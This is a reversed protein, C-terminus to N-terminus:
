ERLRNFITTHSCHLIDAIEDYTKGSNRLKQVQEKTIDQIRTVNNAKKIHEAYNTTVIVERKTIVHPKGIRAIGTSTDVPTLVTFIIM